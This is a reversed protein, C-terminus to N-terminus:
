VNAFAKNQHRGLCIPCCSDPSSRGSDTPSAPPNITENVTVDNTLKNARKKPVGRRSSKSNSSM